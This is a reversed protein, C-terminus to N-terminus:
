VQLKNIVARTAQRQWMCLAYFVISNTLEQQRRSGQGLGWHGAIDAKERKLIEEKLRTIAINHQAELAAVEASVKDQTEAVLRQEVLECWLLFALAM